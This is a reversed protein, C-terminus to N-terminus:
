TEFQAFLRPTVGDCVRGVCGDAAGVEDHDGCGDVLDHWEGAADGGLKCGARQDGVDAAYFAFNGAESVGGESGVCVEDTGVGHGARFFGAPFVAGSGEEFAAGTEDGRQGFGRGGGGGGRHRKPMGEASFDDGDGRVFVVFDDRVDTVQGLDDRRTETSKEGFFIGRPAVVGAATQTVGRADSTTIRLDPAGDEFLIAVFDEAGQAAEFVFEVAQAGSEGVAVVDFDGGAEFAALGVAVM